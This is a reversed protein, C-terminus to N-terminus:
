LVVEEQIQSFYLPLHKYPEAFKGDNTYIGAEILLEKGLEKDGDMRKLFNEMYQLLEERERDTM